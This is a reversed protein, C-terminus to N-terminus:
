PNCMKYANYEDISKLLRAANNPSSLLYSTENMDDYIVKSIMIIIKQNTRNKIFMFNWVHFVRYM